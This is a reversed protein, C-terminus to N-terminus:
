DPVRSQINNLIFDVRTRFTMRYHAELTSSVQLVTASFLSYHNCYTISKYHHTNTKLHRECNTLTM